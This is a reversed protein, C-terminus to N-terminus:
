RSQFSHIWTVNLIRTTVFPMSGIAASGSAKKENPSKAPLDRSHLTWAGHFAAKSWAWRKSFDTDNEPM